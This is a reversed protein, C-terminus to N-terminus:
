LTGAIRDLGRLVLDPVRRAPRTLRGAIRDADGGTIILKMTQTLAEEFEYCVREIAGTLGYLTGAAVADGTSRALCSLEDGDAARVHATGTTLAKRLLGLGPFIVGGVFEGEATLADITVATGCDVICVANNPLEARAGILAVWRDAGLMSPDLYRNTVGLLEAQSKAGHVAVRWRDHVWQEFTENIERPAVSVMAVLNPAPLARWVDDLVGAIDGHLATSGVHWGPDSCAWKLRSNGLDVLLRM